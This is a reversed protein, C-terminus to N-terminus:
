PLDLAIKLAAGIAAMSRLDLRGRQRLLREKTIARVEECLAISEKTLGGEKARLVVQSPYIRDKKARETVPVAIIVSSNQNIADRSM